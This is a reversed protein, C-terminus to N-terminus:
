RTHSSVYHGTWGLRYVKLLGVCLAVYVIVTPAWHALNSIHRRYGQTLRHKKLWLATVLWFSLVFLSLAALAAKWHEGLLPRFSGVYIDHAYHSSWRMGYLVSALYAVTAAMAWFQLGRRRSVDEDMLLAAWALAIMFPVYMFGSIRTTFLCLFAGVSVCLWFSRREDKHASFYAALLLFGILSFCLTPIETVPFKSFFAHLPSLALLGGAILAAQHRGTLLLALRYFCVLSLLSFLTLAYVGATSGFMGIFLAMWVPFLDYFQFQLHSNANGDKYVGAVYSTGLHNNADYRDLYPTGQLSQRVPDNVNIGDTAQIYHAINVYLGEDQGGMVYHYVPVRLPLAVLLLLLVHRWRPVAGPLRQERSRVMYGYVATLLLSVLVVQPAHFVGALTTVLGIVSTVVVFVAVCVFWRDFGVLTTISGVHPKEHANVGTKVADVFGGFTDM